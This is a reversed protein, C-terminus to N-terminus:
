FSNPLAPLRGILGLLGAILGVFWCVSVNELVFVTLFGLFGLLGVCLGTLFGLVDLWDLM